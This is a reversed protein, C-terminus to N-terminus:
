AASGPAFANYIWAVILGGIMGDVFGWVLGAVAGQLTLEYYPYVGILLETLHTLYGTYVALLTSIFICLGYFIGLTLGLAKPSLKM